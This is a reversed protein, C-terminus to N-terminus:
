MRWDILSEIMDLDYVPIGLTEKVKKREAFSDDIFISDLDKIYLSKDDWPQLIIIEEFLGESIKFRQLSEHIEKTHKTLLVIPIKKNVCQYIFAIMQINVQDNM